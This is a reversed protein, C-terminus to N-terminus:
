RGTLNVATWTRPGAATIGTALDRVSIRATGRATTRTRFDTSDSTGTGTAVRIQPNRCTTGPGIRFLLLRVRRGSFQVGFRLRVRCTGVRVPWCCIDKPGLSASNAVFGRAVGALPQRGTFSWKKTVVKASAQWNGGDNAKPTPPGRFSGFDCSWGGRATIKKKRVVFTGTFSCDLGEIKGAFSGSGTSTIRGSGTLPATVRLVGKNVTFAVAGSLQQGSV